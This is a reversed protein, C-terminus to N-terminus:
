AARAAELRDRNRRLVRATVIAGEAAGGEVGVPAYHECRGTGDKEV